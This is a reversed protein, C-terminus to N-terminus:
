DVDDNIIKIPKWNLILIHIQFFFNLKVKKYTITYVGLELTHHNQTYMWIRTNFYKKSITFNDHRAGKLMRNHKYVVNKCIVLENLSCNFYKQFNWWDICIYIYNFTDIHTHIHIHLGNLHKYCFILRDNYVITYCMLNPPYTDRKYM